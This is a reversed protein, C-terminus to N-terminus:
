ERIHGEGLVIWKYTTLEELGMPGRAHLRDTSIGIEAGLGYVGGDALRTTANVIVSASDVNNIFANATDIDKTIIADTHGSGYQNIHAAAADANDVVKVALILDLFEAYYDDETAPKISKGGIARTRECGRIEVGKDQLAKMTKPLFADAIAADVLLTEMSNCVGPRQVKANIAVKEAMALDAQAHVYIHCVGQYHKLVPIRSKEVVRRILSEGGRPIILHILDDQQLMEDVANRDTSIPCSLLHEDVGNAKLADKLIKMLAMNSHYASSGGRLIVANGSKLCLTAAEITVNPRAEYIIGIVGIPVRMKGVRFGEPRVQMDYIRGVPDPLALIEECSRIMGDIRADNLALRDLMAESLGQAKGAELDMMNKEKLYDRNADLLSAVSSLVANKLRTSGDKLFTKYAANTKEALERMKM